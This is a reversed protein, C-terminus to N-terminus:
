PVDDDQGKCTSCVSAEPPDVHLERWNEGISRRCLTWGERDPNEIHLRTGPRKRHYTRRAM